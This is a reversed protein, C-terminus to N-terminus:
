ASTVQVYNELTKAARQKGEDVIRAVERANETSETRLEDIMKYSEEQFTVIADVLKQVSSANITAGYGAKLAAKELTNGLEAIDEIGKNAGTKMSESAQTQEHLGHQATYVADMTTFVHENTTFFTVSQRYVREKLDHTQKLKAVLTEGVNYGITLNEAVDKILQYKQEEQDFARQSEDRVLQLRSKEADNNGSYKSVAETSAAFKQKADNMKADQAKLVEYSLIEAEKIAFRFDMYSDMITNERKLQEHTRETVGSYVEKIKEFRDHTTGKTLRMWFNSASERWDIKGDGLQEVLKRSDDRISNFLKTIKQYDQSVDMQEINDRVLENFTGQYQVVRAIATVRPQDIDVVEQLLTALQSEEGKRETLGFRDLVSTASDLYKQLGTSM